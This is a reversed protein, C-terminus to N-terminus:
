ARDLIAKIILVRNDYKKRIVKIAKNKEMSKLLTDFPIDLSSLEEKVFHDRGNKNVKKIYNFLRQEYNNM